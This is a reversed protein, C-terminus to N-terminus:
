INVDHMHKLPVCQLFQVGGGRGLLSFFFIRYIYSRICGFFFFSLDSIFLQCRSWLINKLYDRGDSGLMLCHGGYYQLIEISLKQEDRPTKSPRPDSM